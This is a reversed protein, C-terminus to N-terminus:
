EKIKQLLKIKKKIDNFKSINNSYEKKNLFYNYLINNLEKHYSKQLEIIKEFFLKIELILMDNPITKSYDETYMINFDNKNNEFSNNMINDDIDYFNNMNIANYLYYNISKKDNSKSIDETNRNTTIIMEDHDIDNEYKKDIINSELTKFKEDLKKIVNVNIIDKSFIKNNTKCKGGSSFINLKNIKICSKNKNKDKFTNNRDYNNSNFNRKIINSDKYNSILENRMLGGEFSRNYKLKKPNNNNKTLYKKSYNNNNVQNLASNNNYTKLIPKKKTSNKPSLGIYAKLLHPQINNSKNTKKNLNLNTKSKNELEYILKFKGKDLIMSM